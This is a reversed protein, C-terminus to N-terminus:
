TIFLATDVARCPRFSASTQTPACCRQAGSLCPQASFLLIEPLLSFHTATVGVDFFYFVLGGRLFVFDRKKGATLSDFDIGVFNRVPVVAYRAANEVDRVADLGAEIM